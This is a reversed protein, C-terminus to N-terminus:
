VAGAAKEIIFGMTNGSEIEAIIKSIDDGTIDTILWDNNALRYHNDRRGAYGFTSTVFTERIAVGSKVSFLSDPIGANGAADALLRCPHYDVDLYPYFYDESDSKQKIEFILFKRFNEIREEINNIKKMQSELLMGHLGAALLGNRGKDGNDFFPARLQRCWLEAAREIIYDPYKDM